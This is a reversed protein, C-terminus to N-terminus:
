HVGPTVIRQTKNGAQIAVLALLEKMMETTVLQLALEQRLYEVVEFEEVPKKILGIGKQVEETAKQVLMGLYAIQPIQVRPESM